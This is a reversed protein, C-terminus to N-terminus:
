LKEENGAFLLGADFHELYLPKFDGSPGRLSHGMIALGCELCIAYVGDSSLRWKILVSGGCRCERVALTTRTSNGSMVARGRRCVALM